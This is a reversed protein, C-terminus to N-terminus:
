LQLLPRCPRANQPTLTGMGDTARNPRNAYGICPFAVVRTRSPLLLWPRRPTSATAATPAVRLPLCVRPGSCLPIAAAEFHPGARFDSHPLYRRASGTAVHPLGYGRPFFRALAGRPAGPYPGLCRPFSARLCRRSPGEGLLPQCCGALVRRGLRHGYAVPPIPDPAHARLLSSSLTVGKSAARLRRRPPPLPARPVQRDRPPHRSASGPFASGRLLSSGSPYVSPTRPTHPGASSGRRRRFPGRLFALTRVPSPFDSRGPDYPPKSFRSWPRRGYPGGRFGPLPRRIRVHAREM